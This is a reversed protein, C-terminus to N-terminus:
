QIYLTNLVLVHHNNKALTVVFGESTIKLGCCRSVKVHPCEFESQLIGDNSYCAVHFRNGHSDGILIDGADSIDIGNPFCTVKENGIRYKFKGDKSFVAVCHGKFDCIYFDNGHVAIDSPERMFDSCDFWHLLDGDESIIFVTPSVSDVAVIHGSNTVALGAVIDIYRIAIKKMFHGGKTFIQMRSRENGRDCVVFRSNNRMVAVKRPYWLQGEDKGPVGFQFKFTGNKEFIEIRHNNTDAVIIEEDLGLCFGHPANFQGKSPGLSGFKCRIHMPTAKIRGAANLTQQFSSLVDEHATLPSTASGLSNPYETLLNSSSNNQHPRSPHQGFDNNGLGIEALAQLSNFANQDGSILDALTFQSSSGPTTPVLTEPLDVATEAINALRHLNYEAISTLGPLAPSPNGISPVPPFVSVPTAGGVSHSNLSDPTMVSSPLMYGSGIASIDGDFSSQMSTPLSIPSSATVSSTLAGQSNNCASNQTGKNSMPPMGPLTPPPTSEKPSPPSSETRLRGFTERALQEFKDPKGEFELSYHVDAKPITNILNLFQCTIIKKLSLFEPGNTNNLVEKTFNCANDIQEASKEVNHFLEMIKLERESHLNDLEKMNDEYCKELIAKFNEYTDKILNRASDHQGQLKQLYSDLDNTAQECYEFKTRAEMMLSQVENKMRKEAQSIKEYVHETGKHELLLCENCITMQCNHCFYKLTETAHVACYLTKHISVKEPSKRMDELKVVTHDEFCRMYQHANDCSACLFNACDNCRSIATEKSKCSTCALLSPDLTSIDLINTYIFYPPLSGVGLPGVKTTQKCTPCDICYTKDDFVDSGDFPSLSCLCKECFIHLCSLVRPMEYTKKCIKCHNDNENVENELPLNTKEIVDAQSVDDSDNLQIEINSPEESIIDEMVKIDKENENEFEENTEVTTLLDLAKEPSPSSSNSNSDISKNDCSEPEESNMSSDIVDVSAM